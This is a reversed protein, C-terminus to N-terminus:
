KGNQEFFYNQTLGAMGVIENETCVIFTKYDPHNSIHHFRMKMEELTTPYGLENMLNALAELDDETADRILISKKEM